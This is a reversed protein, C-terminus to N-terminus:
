SLAVAKTAGILAAKAATYNTQGPMGKISEPKILRLMATKAETKRKLGISYRINKYINKLSDKTTNEAYDIDQTLGAIKKDFM